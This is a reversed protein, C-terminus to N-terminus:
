YYAKWKRETGMTVSDKDRDTKSIAHMLSTVPDRGQGKLTM